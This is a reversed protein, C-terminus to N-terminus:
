CCGKAKKQSKSLKSFEEGSEVISPDNARREVINNFLFTMAKEVGFGTKASTRFAGDFSNNKAFEQITEIGAEDGGEFLDSKNEILIVSINNDNNEQVSKKWVLTDELSQSNNAECLIIVGHSDRSFLNTVQPNRDQGGLDWFHVRYVVDKIEVIKYDFQSGLTAKYTNTFKNHIYRNVFSTKGTNANGIIVIKLDSSYNTKEKEASM